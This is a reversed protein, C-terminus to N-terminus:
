KRITFNISRQPEQKLIIKFGAKGFLEYIEEPAFLYYYRAGKDRWKIYKEKGANKFAKANKNWVAIEASAGRKMVRHLEKAAKLHSKKQLCHFVSLALASDFFNDPFPLKERSIDVAFFEANIKKEKAKRKALKLMKESFDVLYMKGKPIKKLYRGSGSGLDLINGTKGKLFELVNEAQKTKFKNWESAINNWVQQQNM